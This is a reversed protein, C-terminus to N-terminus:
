CIKINEMINRCNYFLDDWNLDEFGDKIMLRLLGTKSFKNIHNNIINNIILVNQISIQAIDLQMIKYNQKVVEINDYIKKYFKAENYNKKCFNYLESIIYSKKDQLQPLYKVVSNLGVGKIGIINDSKDANRCLSRALTFNNPHIQFKELVIKTTLFEKQSIRYLITKNDLLQIFDKDSSVIIKQDNQYKECKTIYAIVDDAETNDLIIQIVPLYEYYETLRAIQWFKNEIEESNTLINNIRNLHIPKRGKKYESNIKRKKVSGNIGDWCVFIIDPKIENLIKQLTKICGYLGGIPSGNINISPVSVYSRFFLNNQDLILIRNNKKEINNKMM